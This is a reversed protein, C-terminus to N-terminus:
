HAPQLEPRSVTEFLELGREQPIPEGDEVLSSLYVQIAEKANSRAAEITDGWTHCGPLSPVYAHYTGGTDPEIIIRYTFYEM